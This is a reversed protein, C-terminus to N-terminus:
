EGKYIKLSVINLVDNGTQYKFWINEARISRTFEIPVTDEYETEQNINEYVIDLSYTRFVANNFEQLMRYISPLIRYLALAYMSLIPIVSETSHYFWLIFMVALILLSFGISELINKPITGLTTSIVMTRSVVKASNEFNHFVEEENGKLKVFKFNGFAEGLIRHLKREADSGEVGLTKTKRVMIQMVLLASILLIITLVLTM